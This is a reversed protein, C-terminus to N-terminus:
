TSVGSGPTGGHETERAQLRRLAAYRRRERTSVGYRALQRIIAEKRELGLLWVLLRGPLTRSLPRRGALAEGRRLCEKALVPHDELGILALRQWAIGLPEVFRAITGQQELRTALKELVRMRSRFRHESVLDASVSVLASGHTRYLAEGHSTLRMAAGSALARFVLDGDENSTLSEDWGGLPDYIERPWLLCCQPFWYGRLWAALPDADPPPLPFDAPVPTWTSGRLALRRWRSVAITGPLDRLLEVGAAIIDPSLVDDADLFVLYRGSAEAAGRSRARSVGANAQRVGKIASGFSTVIEWTDDTSGDDVVIMEVPAHTQRLVSDIAARLFAGTNYSTTVVSVLPPVGLPDDPM